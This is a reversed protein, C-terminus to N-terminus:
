FSIQFIVHLFEKFSYKSFYKKEERAAAESRAWPRLRGLSAGARAEGRRAEAWGLASAGEGARRARRRAVGGVADPSARRM